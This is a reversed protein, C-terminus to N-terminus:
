DEEAGAVRARVQQMLMRNSREISAKGRPHYGSTAIKQIGLLARLSQIKESSFSAGNDSLLREPAGSVFLWRELLTAAFSKKSEEGLPICVVIWAPGHFYGLVREVLRQPVWSRERGSDTRVLAGEENVAWDVPADEYTPWVPLEFARAARHAEILELLGPLGLAVDDIEELVDKGEQEPVSDRSLCDPAEMEKGPRYEVAFPLGQIELAWRALRGQLGKQKLLWVLASHDTGVVVTNDVEKEKEEEEESGKAVEREGKERGGLRSAPRWTKVYVAAEHEGTKWNASHSFHCHVLLTVALNWCPDM